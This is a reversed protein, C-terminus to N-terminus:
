IRWLLKKATAGASLSKAAANGAANPAATKLISFCFVPSLFQTIQVLVAFVGNALSTAGFSPALQIALLGILNWLVPWLILALITSGISAVGIRVGFIFESLVILPIASCFVAILLTFISRVIYPFSLSSIELAVRWVINYEKMADIYEGMAGRSVSMEQYDFRAALETVTSIGTKFLFPFLSITILVMVADQVVLAYEDAGAVQLALLSFRAVMVVGVFGMVVASVRSFTETIASVTGPDIPPFPMM